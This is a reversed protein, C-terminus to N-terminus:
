AIPTDSASALLERAQRWREDAALRSLGSSGSRTCRLAEMRATWGAPAIWRLAGLLEDAADPANCVLVVDCGAALAAQGRAVIGGAVGAGEMSLDDSFLVGRFGLKGRLIDQLWVRSFGAPAADV